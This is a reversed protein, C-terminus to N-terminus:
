LYELPLEFFFFRGIALSYLQNNIGFYDKGTLGSRSLHVDKSLHSDLNGSRVFYADFGHKM